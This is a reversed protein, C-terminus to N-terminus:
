VTCEGHVREDECFEETRNTSVVKADVGASFIGKVCVDHRSPFCYRDDRGSGCGCGCRVVLFCCHYTQM